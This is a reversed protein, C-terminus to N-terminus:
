KLGKIADTLQNLFALLAAKDGQKGAKAVERYSLWSQRSANYIDILKNIQEKKVQPCTAPVCDAKVAEITISATGLIDFAHSDVSDVAGPRVTHMCGATLTLTLIAISAYRKM